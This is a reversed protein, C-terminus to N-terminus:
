ALREAGSRLQGQSPAFERSAGLVLPILHVEKVSGRCQSFSELLMLGPVAHLHNRVELPHFLRSFVWVDSRM